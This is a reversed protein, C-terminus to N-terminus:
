RQDPTERRTYGSGVPRPAPAAGIVVALILESPGRECMRELLVRFDLPRQAARQTRSEPRSGRGSRSESTLRYGFGGQDIPDQEDRLM